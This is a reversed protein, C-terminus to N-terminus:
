YTDKYVATYNALSARRMRPKVKLTCFVTKVGISSVVVFNPIFVIHSDRFM